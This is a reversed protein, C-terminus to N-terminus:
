RSHEIKTRIEQPLPSTGNFQVMRLDWEIKRVSKLDIAGTALDIHYVSMVQERPDIVTIQQRNEGAPAALAILGSQEDYGTAASIGPGAVQGVPQGPQAWANLGLAIVLACVLMGVSTFRM